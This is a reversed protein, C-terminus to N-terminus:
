ELKRYYVFEHEPALGPHFIKLLDWLIVDPHVVGSEWYDNGGLSNLRKDNNYIRQRGFVPLKTFRDDRAAIQSLTRATGTNIWCRASFAKMFVSELNLPIYEGSSNDAWLYLGGADHIMRAMFSNGGAMYWTDKWPLGVMVEPKTAAEGAIRSLEHYREKAKSFLNGALKEKQYFAGFVKIWEMKGLPHKELYEAIIVSPIGVAALREAISTVSSNLGYLLVLGPHLRIITEYDVAPAYGAEKVKGEEIRQRVTKNYVYKLGSAGTITSEEHLAAIFGIHTTSFVVVNKVPVEILPFTRLSDPVPHHGNSLVYTFGAEDANQWPNIITLLSFNGYQRITFKDSYDNGTDPVDTSERNPRCSSFLISLAIFSILLRM